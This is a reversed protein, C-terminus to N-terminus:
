PPEGPTNPPANCSAGFSICADPAAPNDPSSGSPTTGHRISTGAVGPASRLPGLASSADAPPPNYSHPPTSHALTNGRHSPKGAPVPGPHASLM